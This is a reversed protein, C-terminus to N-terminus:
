LVYIVGYKLVIQEFDTKFLDKHALPKKYEWEDNRLYQCSTGNTLWMPGDNSLLVLHGFHNSFLFIYSLLFIGFVPLIDIGWVVTECM